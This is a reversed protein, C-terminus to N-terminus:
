LFAVGLAESVTTVTLKANAYATCKLHADVCKCDTCGGRSVLPLGTTRDASDRLCAATRSGSGTSGVDNDVTRVLIKHFGQMVHMVSMCKMIRSDAEEHNCPSLSQQHGEHLYAYCMPVMLLLSLQQGTMTSHHLVGSILRM